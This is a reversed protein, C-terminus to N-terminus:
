VAVTPEFGISDALSFREDLVQLFVENGKLRGRHRGPGHIAAPLDAGLRGRRPLDARGGSSPVLPRNTAVPTVTKM